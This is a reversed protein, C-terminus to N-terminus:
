PASRGPRSLVRPPAEPTAEVARIMVPAAKIMTTTNAPNGASLEHHELLHPNPTATASRSSAVTIREITSGLM